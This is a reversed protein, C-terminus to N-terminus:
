EGAAPWRKLFPRLTRLALAPHITTLYSGALALVLDPDDPLLRILREAGRQFGRADHTASYLSVLEILVDVRNPQRRALDELLDRAEAYQRREFLARAEGLEADPKGSLPMSLGRNGSPRQRKAM